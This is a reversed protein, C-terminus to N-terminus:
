EVILLNYTTKSYTTLVSFEMVSLVVYLPIKEKFKSIKKEVRESRRQQIIRKFRGLFAVDVFPFCCLFCFSPSTTSSQVSLDGREAM